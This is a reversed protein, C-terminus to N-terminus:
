LQHGGAKESDIFRSIGELVEERSEIYGDRGGFKEAHITRCNYDAPAGYLENVFKEGTLYRYLEGATVPETAPHWLTIEEKLATQIDGWLRSLAYFQFASRSDTFRLASFGTKRFKEKLKERDRDAAELRFFGNDLPRYYAKLEPEKVSLRRFTEGSLMFLIRNMYDYIFNKKIYKGYLGPLRVILADPYTERVRKELQYRNYGYAQLNGTDVPSNEDVDKPVGFVDITSILVLKKPNIKLINDEAQRVLEMDQKPAHNALYKEAKLGAYILLDPNTRYAESINKSHYVADFFGSDYLNSGVFGTYGVLAKM